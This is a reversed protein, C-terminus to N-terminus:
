HIKEKSFLKYAKLSNAGNIYELKYNEWSIM